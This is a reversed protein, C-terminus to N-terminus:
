KSRRALFCRPLDRRSHQIYVDVFAKSLGQLLYRRRIQGESSFMGCRVLLSRPFSQQRLGHIKTLKTETQKAGRHTRLPHRRQHHHHFRYNIWFHLHYHPRCTWSCPVCPFSCPHHHYCTWRLSDMLFPRPSPEWYRALPICLTWKTRTLHLSVPPYTCPWTFAPYVGQWRRAWNRHAVFRPWRCVRRQM